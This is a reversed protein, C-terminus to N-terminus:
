DFKSTSNKVLTAGKALQFANTHVHYELEWNPSILIPTQVYRNKIGEKVNQCGRKLVMHRVGFEKFSEFTLGFTFVVSFYFTSTCEKPQLM